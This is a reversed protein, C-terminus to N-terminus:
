GALREGSDSDFLHLGGPAIRLSVPDGESLQEASDLRAIISLRRGYVPPQGSAPALGHDPAAATELDVHVYQDAGTWEIVNVSGRFAPGGADGGAAPRLDEPRFGAVLRRRGNM